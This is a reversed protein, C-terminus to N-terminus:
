RGVGLTLQAVRHPTMAAGRLETVIRGERIVLIRDCVATLEEFDSAVLLAAAGENTAARVLKYIEARAGVDVGQTPEDLLLLKPRLRLWRAMVVKQQNGGSLHALLADASNAKVLFQAIDDTADRNIRGQAIRGKKFYSGMAPMAINTAITQDMFVADQVRSEPIYAVGARIAAAPSGPRYDVRALQMEGNKVELDGFIARLLETRGAGLLGAIGVIEGKHVDFTVDRLPEVTLNRARFALDSPSSATAKATKDVEKGIILEILFGESIESADYTGVLEGDRLASVRDAIALIEDLRHSVYLIAQGKAAYRKLQALLMEVEQAPLSATPEDLILLGSSSDAQSQLARAIAIQTRVAPGLSRLETEPAANIEFRRLLTESRKKLSQWDIGQFWTREYHSGLALNEAVSMDLFVGLDQHVVRVGNQRAIAPTTEDAKTESNGIRLTGGPDGQYIGCLVKILTSKGSGNGGILAHIEGARIDLNVGNLARTGPFTKSLQTIQVRSRSASGNPPSLTHVNGVEIM